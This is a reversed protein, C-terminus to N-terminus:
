GSRRRTRQLHLVWGVAIVWTLAYLALPIWFGTIALLILPLWLTLLFLREGRSAPAEKNAKWKRLERPLYNGFFDFMLALAALLGTALVTFPPGASTVEFPSTSALKWAIPLVAVISGAIWFYRRV